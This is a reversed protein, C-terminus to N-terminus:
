KNNNNKSYCLEFIKEELAELRQNVDMTKLAALFLKKQKEKNSNKNKILKSLRIDDIDKIEKMNNMLTQWHIIVL